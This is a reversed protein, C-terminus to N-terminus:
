TRSGPVDIKKYDNKQWQDIFSKITMQNKATDPLEANYTLTFERDQTTRFMRTKMPKRKRVPRIALKYGKDGTSEQSLHWIESLRWAANNVIKGGLMIGIYDIISGQGEVYTPDDEHATIIVNVGHKATVRLIGTLVEFVIANRGGYASLGPAEMSPTFGKGMGTKSILVSKQLARFSLATLSDCVVTEISTHEALYQDLGFPNDNQAQKFFDELSMDYTKAVFVDPRHQVSVHENDGMSLWLKDGPATAAFTTKGVGSDGWILIASRTPTESGHSVEITGLKLPPTATKPKSPM